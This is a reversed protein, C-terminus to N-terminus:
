RWLAATYIVIAFNYSTHLALPPGLSGSRLRAALTALALVLIAVTAPWYQATEFIHMLVFIFTVAIAGGVVGWSRTFGKLLLGRFLFEETPPALVIALLIWAVYDFGDARALQALPGAVLDGRPPFLFQAFLLYSAAILVGILASVALDLRRAARLGIGGDTRDRTEEWAWARALLLTVAATVLASVIITVGGLRALSEFTAPDSLNQGSVAAYILNGVVAVFGVAFQAVLVLLVVLGAKGARFKPLTTLAPQPDVPLPEVPLAIADERLQAEPLLSM